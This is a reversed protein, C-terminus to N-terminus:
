RRFSGRRCRPQSAARSRLREWGPSSTGVIQTQADPFSLSGLSSLGAELARVRQGFRIWPRAAPRCGRCLNMIRLPTAGSRLEFVRVEVLMKRTCSSKPWQGTKTRERQNPVNRQQASPRAHPRLNLDERGSPEQLRDCAFLLAYKYLEGNVIVVRSIIREIRRLQACNVRTTTSKQNFLHNGSAGGRV